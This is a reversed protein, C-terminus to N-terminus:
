TLVRTSVWRPVMSASLATPFPLVNMRRNGTDLDQNRILREDMGGLKEWFSKEVIMLGGTVPEFIVKNSLKEDKSYLYKFDCDYYKEKMNGNVFPYILSKKSQDFIFEFFDPLLQMDGDIFFLIEGKARKAGVNRAIASNVNGTILLIM